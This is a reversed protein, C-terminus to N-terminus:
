CQTKRVKKHANNGYLIVSIIGQVFTMNQYRQKLIMVTIMCILPKNLTSSKSIALLLSLLTPLQQQLESWIKDWSFTVKDCHKTLITDTKTSCIHDIETNVKKALATVMEDSFTTVLSKAMSPYSRRAIRIVADERSPTISYEQPGSNYEM